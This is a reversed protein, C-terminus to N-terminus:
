KSCNNAITIIHTGARDRACLIDYVTYRLRGCYFTHIWMINNNYYKKKINIIVIIITTPLCLYTCTGNLTDFIECRACYSNSDCHYNFFVHYSFRSTQTVALSIIYYCWTPVRCHHVWVIEICVCVLTRAGLIIRFARPFHCFEDPNRKNTIRNSRFM